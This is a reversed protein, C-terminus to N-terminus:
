ARKEGETFHRLRLTQAASKSVLLGDSQGGATKARATHGYNKLLLLDDDDDQRCAFAAGAGEWATWFLVM